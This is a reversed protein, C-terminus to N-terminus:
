IKQTGNKSAIIELINKLTINKIDIDKPIPINQKKDKNKDVISLYYGYQGNNVYITKNKIIFSKPSNNLKTEIIDKAEEITLIEPNEITEPISFNQKDYKIYIGFKGNALEVNKKGIKGIMKPFSVLSIADELIINTNGISVYIPKDKDNFYKIYPGYKGQGVFLEKQTEPHIGLLIDTNNNVPVNNLTDVISNFKKYFIDLVNYWQAKHDAIKDLYTEFESTFDIQMIDHFHTELFTTIKIGLETPVIKKNEKGIIVEKTSEKIKFKKDLEIINSSKVTGDINKIEVYNRDIIKSIITAYTSPRGINNKELFKVLNAENFRLPLKSYEEITKLKNFLLIDNIKIEIKGVQKEESDNEEDNSDYLKLFGDFIISEYVSNWITKNLISKNNNYTDILITQVNVKAAEMQSAVTKKWILNYLKLLDKDTSEIQPINIHTPRIAEHAEQAGGSASYNTPKSYQEGFNDIIYKKCSNIADQSLNPSDTRMYTIHGGEYLKQAVDMTKKVSFKLKTSAEQQLSSTIFPPSPKRISIKEQIDTVKFISNKNILAIFQKANELSDFKYIENKKMLICNIKIGNFELECTTKLYINSICNNIEDEKDKIIKVVVSQVRGASKADKDNLNKQLLPSIKYGVLRDLLRRAQQAHVMDMNIQTPNKIAKEIANKTIETFIIRTPNKLDLLNSLSWAIAEGERDNDAALIVSNCKKATEKLENVIKHKDKSIIYTPKYNNEVDISLNNPDLDMCHGFSAKVIYNSGLYEGIKKIKGASEVIVLHKSM